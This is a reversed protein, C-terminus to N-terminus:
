VKDLGESFKPRTTRDFCIKTKDSQMSRNTLPIFSIVGLIKQHFYKRHFDCCLNSIKSPDSPCFKQSTLHLTQPRAFLIVRARRTQQAAHATSSWCIIACCHLLSSGFSQLRPCSFGWRVPPRFLFTVLVVFFLLTTRRKKTTTADLQRYSHMIYKNGYGDNYFYPPFDSM